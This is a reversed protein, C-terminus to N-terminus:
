IPVRVSNTVDFSCKWPEIAAVWDKIYPESMHTAHAAADQFVIYEVVAKDADM